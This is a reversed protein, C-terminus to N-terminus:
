AEKASVVAPPVVLTDATVEGSVVNFTVIDSLPGSEILMEAQGSVFEDRTVFDISDPVTAVLEGLETGSALSFVVPGPLPAPDGHLTGTVPGVSAFEGIGPPGSKVNVTQPM